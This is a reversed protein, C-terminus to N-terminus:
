RRNRQSAAFRERGEANQREEQERTMRVYHNAMDERHRQQAADRAENDKAWDAGFRHDYTPMPSAGALSPRPPPCIQRGTDWDFLQVSNLVSRTDGSFGNRGRAHLEASVLYQEV